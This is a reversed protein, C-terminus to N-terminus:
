GLSEVVDEASAYSRPRLDYLARRTRVDAGRLDACTTIQWKQAPYSLEDLIDLLGVTEEMTTM